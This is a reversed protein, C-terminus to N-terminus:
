GSTSRIMTQRGVRSAVRLLLANLLTLPPSSTRTAQIPVAVVGGGFGYSSSLAGFAQEYNKPTPAPTSKSSTAITSVTLTEQSDISSRRSSLDADPSSSLPSRPKRVCFARSPSHRLHLLRRSRLLPTNPSPSLSQRRRATWSVTCTRSPSHPPTTVISSLCLPLRLLLPARASLRFSFPPCQLQKFQTPQKNKADRRTLAKYANLVALAAAAASFMDTVRDVILYTHNNRSRMERVAKPPEPNITLTTRHLVPNFARQGARLPM